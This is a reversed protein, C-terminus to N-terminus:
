GEADTEVTIPEVIYESQVFGIYGSSADMVQDWGNGVAYVIVEGGDNIRRAVAASRSPAWRLNVFAGPVPSQICTYYPEVVVFSSFDLESISEPAAPEKEQKEEEQGTKLFRTQIWASELETGIRAWNGDTELVEVVTGNELVGCVDAETSPSVRLNATDGYPIDIFMEDAYASAVPVLLALVLLLGIIRKRKM